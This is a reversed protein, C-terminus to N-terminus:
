RRVPSDSPVRAPMRAAVGDGLTAHNGRGSRDYARAGGSEDFTLHMLLGAPSAEVSGAAEAAIQEDSRALDWVRIEDLKGTYLDRTGDTTGIWATTPTRHNPTLTGEAIRSGDVYLAHTSGDYVYAVHHWVGATLPEGAQAYASGDYIRFATLRGDQIGFETGADLDRRLTLFSQRTGSTEAHAMWLSLTFPDLPFPFGATGCSAYDDTGDFQLAYDAGSDELYPSEPPSDDPAVPAETCASALSVCALLRHARV